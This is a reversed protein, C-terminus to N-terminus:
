RRDLNVNGLRGSAFDVQCSFNFNDGGRRRSARVNGQIYDPRNRNNDFDVNGFQVNDYGQRRLRDNVADHCTRMATDVNAQNWNGWRGNWRDRGYSGNRYGGYNGNNGFGGNNNNGNNNNGNGFGGNNPYGNNGNSPYGNNYSTDGGSWFIDFTYGERGGQPDDIRVVAPGRSGSPNRVLTQSGRGDVGQFRFNAPNNPMPSTCDMRRFSAPSGGLTRMRAQGGSIEVEASSDVDVEITCKNENGGGGRINANISTTQASLGAAGLLFILFANKGRVKQIMSQTIM